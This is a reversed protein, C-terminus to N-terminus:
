PRLVVQVGRERKIFDSAEEVYRVRGNLEDDSHDHDAWGVEADRPFQKLRRILEHVTV